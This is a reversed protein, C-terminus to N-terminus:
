EPDLNIRAGQVTQRAINVEFEAGGSLKKILVDEGDDVEITYSGGLRAKLANSVLGAIRNESTAGPVSVIVNVPVGGVPAIQLVIVGESEANGSFELRWKNSPGAWATICALSLFLALALRLPSCMRIARM